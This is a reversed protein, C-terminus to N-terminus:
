IMLAARPRGPMNKRHRMYRVVGSCDEMCYSGWKICINISVSMRKEM